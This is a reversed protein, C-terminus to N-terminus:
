SRFLRGILFGAAAAVLVSVLPQNRVQGSLAEAQVKTYDSAQHAAHQAKSAADHLAPNVRENMLTDMQRRLQALQSRTDELTASAKDSLTDVTAM